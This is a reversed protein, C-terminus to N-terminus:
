SRGPRARWLPLNLGLAVANPRYDTDNLFVWRLTVELQLPGVDSRGGVLATYGFFTERGDASEATGVFRDRWGLGGGLLIGGDTGGPIWALELNYQYETSRTRFIAEASPALEVVGSRVLPIHLQGGLLSGNAEDDFGFRVGVSIPAWRPGTEAVRGRRVQAGADTTALLAMAAMLVINRTSTQRTPM